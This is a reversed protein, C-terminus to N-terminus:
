LSFYQDENLRCDESCFKHEFREIAPTGCYQCQQVSEDQDSLNAGLARVAEIHRRLRGVDRQLKAIQAEKSEIFFRIAEQPTYAIKDSGKFLGEALTAKILREIDSM